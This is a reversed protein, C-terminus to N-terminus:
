IPMWILCQYIRQGNIHQDFGHEVLIDGALSYGANSMVELAEKVILDIGNTRYLDSYIYLFCKEEKLLSMTDRVDVGLRKATDEYIGLGLDHYNGNRQDKEQYHFSLELIHPQLMMLHQVSSWNTDELFCENYVHKLFYCAKRDSIIWTNAKEKFLIWRDRIERLREQRLYALELERDNEAVRKDLEVIIDKNEMNNMLDATDKVTFGLQTFSRSRLMRGGHYYTYYRYSSEEDVEPVVIGFKEYHKLTKLSVGMYKSFDGIKYKKLEEGGISGDGVTM